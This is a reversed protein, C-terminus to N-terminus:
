DYNIISVPLTAGPAPGTDPDRGTGPRPPGADTTHARPDGPCFFKM